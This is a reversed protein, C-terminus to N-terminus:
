PDTSGLVVFLLVTAAPRCSDSTRCAVRGPHPASTIHTKFMSSKEPDHADSSFTEKLGFRSRYDGW